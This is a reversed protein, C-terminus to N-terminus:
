VERKQIFGIETMEHKRSRGISIVQDTMRYPIFLYLATQTPELQARHIEIGNQFLGKMMYLYCKPPGVKIIIDGTKIEDNERAYQLAGVVTVNIVPGSKEKPTKFSAKLAMGMIRSISMFAQPIEKIANESKLLRCKNTARVELALIVPMAGKVVLENVMPIIADGIKNIKHYYLDAFSLQQKVVCCIPTAGNSYTYNPNPLDRIFLGHARPFETTQKAVEALSEKFSTLKFQNTAFKKKM